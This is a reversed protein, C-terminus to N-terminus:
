DEKKRKVVIAAGGISAIAILTAGVGVASGCGTEVGAGSESYLESGVTEPITELLEDEVLDEAATTKKTTKKATTKKATTTSTTEGTLEFKAIPEGYGNFKYQEVIAPYDKYCVNHDLKGSWGSITLSSSYQYMGYKTPYKETRSGTPTHNFYNAMWFEYKKGIDNNLKSSMWGNYGDDFWAAYGYLGVLCGADRLTDMFAYCVKTAKMSDSGLKSRATNSEYDLYIPYEFKKGNIYQLCYKAELIAEAETTAQSYYYAGVKLGVKRAQAYFDEFCYDKRNTGANLKVGARIIVYDFGADKVKQLNMGKQHESIDLGKSLIKGTGNMSGKYGRDYGNEASINLSGFIAFMSVITVVTLLISVARKLKMTTKEKKTRKNIIM